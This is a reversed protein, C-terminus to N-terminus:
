TKAAKWIVKYISTSFDREIVCGTGEFMTMNTSIDNEIFVVVPIRKAIAYGIEFITGADYENLVAYLIDSQNIGVLDKKAVIHAKGFGVDHIPSFVNAGFKELQFKTEEILWREAMNFFPGALYIQKKFIDKNITIEDFSFSVFLLSKDIPLTMSNCYLATAYSAKKAADFPSLNDKAWLYGFVAVFVDGSGIKFVKDTVYSPIYKEKNEYFLHAGFPGNKLIVVEVNPKSFFVKAIESVKEKGTYNKGEELNMVLAVHNAKSGNEFIMSPNEESQPDYVLYDSNVIPTDSELMGYCIVIEEELLIQKQKEIPKHMSYINPRSLAHYYEFKINETSITPNITINYIKSFYKLKEEQNVYTHFLIDSGFKSIAAAARGGSGFNQHWYPYLCLEEYFGGIIHIM